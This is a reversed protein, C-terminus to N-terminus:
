TARSLPSTSDRLEKVSPTKLDGIAYTRQNVWSRLTTKRGELNKQTEDYSRERFGFLEEFWDTAM